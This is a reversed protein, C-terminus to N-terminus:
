RPNSDGGRRQNRTTATLETHDVEEGEERHKGKTQWVFEELLGIADRLHSPALHMYRLTTKLDSHGALEQIAKPSAGRLALSSCFTHRLVHWGIERGLKARRAVRDLAKELWSQSWPKGEEDCFAYPGRLHRIKQLVRVLRETMPIKRDRGWKPSGLQDRWFAQV